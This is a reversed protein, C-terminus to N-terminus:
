DKAGDFSGNKLRLPDGPVNVADSFVFFTQFSPLSACMLLDPEIQLLATFPPTREEIKQPQIEHGAEAPIWALTKLDFRKLGSMSFTPTPGDKECEEWKVSDITGRFAVQSGDLVCEYYFEIPKGVFLENTRRHAEQWSIKPVSM